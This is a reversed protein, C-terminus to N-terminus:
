IKSSQKMEAIKRGERLRSKTCANSCCPLSCGMMSVTLRDYKAEVVDIDKRPAKNRIKM